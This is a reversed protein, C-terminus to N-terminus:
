GRDNLQNKEGVFKDMEILYEKKNFKRYDIGAIEALKEAASLLKKKPIIRDIIGYDSGDAASFNNGKIVLELSKAKPIMKIIKQVGGIGPMLNYSSEPLGLVANETCLRFHCFLTLEFAAGICVGQIAAIVPINWKDFALFSNLNNQISDPYNSINGNNDFRTHNYITTILEDLDAGSSFHRGDGYVIVAKVNSNPIINTSLDNLELFFETTMANAPPRNLVLHGIKKQEQWLLTKYKAM